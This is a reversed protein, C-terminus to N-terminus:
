ANGVPLSAAGGLVIAAYIPASPSTGGVDLVARLYRKRTLNLDAIRAEKHQNDATITISIGSVAAFSSNDDSEELNVVYTENGDALDIDGVCAVLMGDSYGKTDVGTGNADATRVAPVLSPVILINDFVKQM